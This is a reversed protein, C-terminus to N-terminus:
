IAHLLLCINNYFNLDRSLYVCLKQQALCTQLFSFDEDTRVLRLRRTISMSIIGCIGIPFRTFCPSMMNNEKSNENKQHAIRVKSRPLSNNNTKM